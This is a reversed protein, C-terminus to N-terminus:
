GEAPETNPLKIPKARSGDYLSEDTLVSVKAQTPESAKRGSVPGAKVPKDAALDDIMQELADATLDEYYLDGETNSIQVMPANACAGLCEVEEWALKGDDSVHDRGKRGIKKECVAKLDDAGRLWCPTTGCVQILHKGTPALNFMTYFTAVEYVRIYPMDCRAAIERMAPESVWNDQKQAIWLLPIVASARREEPYKNLWFKVKKESEKSFAFSEPQEAALRRVSM